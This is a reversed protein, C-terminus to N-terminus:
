FSHDINTTALEVDAIRATEILSEYFEDRKSIGVLQITKKRYALKLEIGKGTLSLFTKLSRIKKLELIEDFPIELADHSNKPGYNKPQRFRFTMLRDSLILTGTSMNRPFPKAKDVLVCSRTIKIVDEGDDDLGIDTESNTGTGDTTEDPEVQEVGEHAKSSANKLASIVEAPSPPRAAVRTGGLLPTSPRSPLPSCPIASAMSLSM